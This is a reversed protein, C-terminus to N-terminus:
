RSQVAPPVVALVMTLVQCRKAAMTRAAIRSALTLATRAYLWDRIASRRNDAEGLFLYSLGGTGHPDASSQEAAGRDCSTKNPEALSRTSDTYNNEM